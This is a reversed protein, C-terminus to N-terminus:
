LREVVDVNLEIDGGPALVYAPLEIMHALADPWRAYNPAFPQSRILRQRAALPTLRRIKPEPSDRRAELFIVGALPASVRMPRKFTARVDIEHKAAGSRRTILHSKMQVNPFFRLTDDLLHMFTPVGRVEMADNNSDRPLVFASDEAILDWGHRMCAFTLTSKGAGSEGFILWARNNIVVCAAHLGVAHLHHSALRYCAFEIMEYRVHYPFARMTPSVMVLASGAALACVAADSATFIANVVHEDAYVNPVPAHTVSATADDNALLRVLLHGNSTPECAPLGGYAEEALRLLWAANSEFRVPVGLVNLVAHQTMRTYRLFPDDPTRKARTMAM